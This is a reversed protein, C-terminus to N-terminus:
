VQAPTLCISSCSQKLPVYKSGAVQAVEMLWPFLRYCCWFLGLFCNSVVSFGGWARACFPRYLKPQLNARLPFNAIKRVRSFMATFVALNASKRANMTFNAHKKQLTWLNELLNRNVATREENVLDCNKAISTIQNGCSETMLWHCFKGVKLLNRFVQQNESTWCIKAFKRIKRLNQLKRLFRLKLQSSGGLRRKWQKERDIRLKRLQMCDQVCLKPNAVEEGRCYSRDWPCM